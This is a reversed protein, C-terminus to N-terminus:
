VRMKGRAISAFIGTFCLISSIFFLIKMSKMFMPYYEPTIQVRGIILSFLLLSIGMSLMQGTLRMTALMASAVGYSKREVSGMVANTNPSSFIGFGIGLILLSIIIHLMGTTEGLFILTILGITTLGMGISALLRPEIKDSLIGAIPSFIAMMIPQAILILGAQEPALGKVYQLYLSLLFGVASTAGYHILAALNSFAFVINSKFLRINMVPYKLRTEWKVFGALALLGFLLLWLGWMEPLVSFAYIISVLTLGYIASGTFDFREGKAEAWEGRLKWVVVLAVLLGLLSNFIFISRWGFYKILLGGIFPGASLGTYVAAVNIGLARGREKGPFTSTLIAVGTGATMANSLGLFAQFIIIRAGSNATSCLFSAIANLLIGVLFVKKRGHIDAFRGFPVLFAASALINVATVWNLVVANLSLERGISPLAINVSAFTLPVLFSAMSIILLVTIKSVSATEGHKM